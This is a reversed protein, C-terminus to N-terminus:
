EDARLLLQCCVWPAVGRSSRRSHQRLFLVSKNCSTSWSMGLVAEELRGAASCIASSNFWAVSPM